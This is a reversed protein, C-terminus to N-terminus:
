LESSATMYYLYIHGTTLGGASFPSAVGATTVGAPTCTIDVAGTADYAKGSAGSNTSYATVTPVGRMVQPFLFSGNQGGTGNAVMSQANLGSSGPAGIYSTFYYRQCYSFEIPVPRYELPPPSSNLGVPVGPTARLDFETVSISKTNANLVGGFQVNIALGFIQTAAQFTYALRTWVGAPVSQLSVPALDTVNGAYNDFASPHSVSFTPTFAAGTNNYIWFSFTCIQGSLAAAIYSEIRQLVVTSTVGTNGTLTLNNRTRGDGQGGAGVGVQATGTAGGFQAM